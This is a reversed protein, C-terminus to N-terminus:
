AADRLNYAINVEATVPIDWGPVPLKRNMLQFMIDGVRKADHKPVEMVISDYNQHVLGTGPGAYGFPIEACLETTVINALDAEGSLIPWNVLKNGVTGKINGSDDLEGDEFDCRRGLIPSLLFGDRKWINEEMEWAIKWEPENQMWSEYMAEIMTRPMRAYILRGKNDQTARVVRCLTDVFAKYAGAYRLTKAASRMKGASGIYEGKMGRPGDPIGSANWFRDGYIVNGAFLAHPDLGKTFAEILSPIKWRNAILVLHLADWDAGVYCNGEAPVYMDRLKKSLNLLNPSACAMRGVLTAHAKWGARVRGDPDVFTEPHNPDAKKLYTGYLKSAMGHRRLEEIFGKQEPEVQKSTAYANIVAKGTSREGTSTFVDKTPKDNVLLDAPIPLDWLDFLVRRRHVTSLPNFSERGTKGFSHPDVGIDALRGWLGLHKTGDLATWGEIRRKVESRLRGKWRARVRQDILVGNRHLGATVAQMKHDIALVREQGRERVRRALVPALRANFAVDYGNYVNIEGDGTAETATHAAKWAPNGETSFLSVCFGLGKPLEPEVVRTAMLTDFIRGTGLLPCPWVMRGVLKLFWQEMVMRDYSGANHGVWVHDGHELCQALAVAIAMEEAATYVWDNLDLSWLSIVLVHTGNGVGITSLKDNLPDFIPRNLDIQGNDKVGWRMPKTEVDLTAVKPLTLLWTCIEAVTPFARGDNPAGYTTTPETFTLTGNFWSFARALDNYYVKTWRPQHIVNAITPVVKWADREYVERGDEIRVKRTEIFQGRVDSIKPDGGLLSKAPIKGVAVVNTTNALENLLRPRCCEQPTLVPPVRPVLTLGRAKRVRNELMAERDQMGRKRNIGGLQLAIKSYHGGPPACAIAHNVDVDPRMVGINALGKFTVFGHRGVFPEGQTEEAPGPAQAVLTTEAGPRYRPPVPKLPAPLNLIAHRAGFVCAHCKAGCSAPDYM